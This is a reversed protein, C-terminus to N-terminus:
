RRYFLIAQDPGTMVVETLGSKGDQLMDEMVPVQWTNPLPSTTGGDETSTVHIELCYQSEPHDPM